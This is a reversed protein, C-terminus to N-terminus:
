LIQEPHLPPIGVTVNVSGAIVELGTKGPMTYYLWDELVVNQLILRPVWKTRREPIVTYSATQKERPEPWYICEVKM